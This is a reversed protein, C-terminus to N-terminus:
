VLRQVYTRSLCELGALYDPIAMVKALETAWLAAMAGRSPQPPAGACPVEGVGPINLIDPLITYAAGRLLDNRASKTLQGTALRAAAAGSAAATQAARSGPEAGELPEPATPLPDSSPFPDSSPQPPAPLPLLGAASRTSERSNRTRKAPSSM